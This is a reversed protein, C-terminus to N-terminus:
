VFPTPRLGRRVPDLSYIGTSPRDTARVGRGAGDALMWLAHDGDVVVEVHQDVTSAAATSSPSAADARDADLHEEVIAWYVANNVHGLVDFDSFRLPWPERHPAEPPDGHRSGPPARHSWRGGRRLRRDFSQRAARKPRGTALDVHVWLAAAEISGGDSVQSPRGGSRGGAARAGVGLDDPTLDERFVPFREVHSRPAACSGRRDRGRRDGRGCRRQRRGAPVPGGRRAAHRGKPRSTASGSARAHAPSPGGSAPRPILVRPRLLRRPRTRRRVAAGLRRSAAPVARHGRVRGARAEGEDGISAVVACARLRDPAAEVCRTSRRATSRASTAGARRRARAARAQVVDVAARHGRAAADLSAVQAKEGTDRRVITVNGEALDRPGVELRLPCARSSGTPPAAVSRRTSALRRARRARGRRAARERAARAADGAGDEDKVLLVVCQTPALRPPVVLGHEDGHGM